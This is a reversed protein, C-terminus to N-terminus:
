DDFNVCWDKDTIRNCDKITTDESVIKRALPGDYCNYMKVRAIDCQALNYSVYSNHITTDHIACQELTPRMNLRRMMCRDFLCDTYVDTCSKISRLMTHTFTCMDFRCNRLFSIHRLESDKFSCNHMALGHIVVHDFIVNNFTCHNFTVNLMRKREIVVDEFTCHNFTVNQIPANEDWDISEDKYAFLVGKFHHKTVTLRDDNNSLIDELVRTDGEHEYITETYCLGPLTESYMGMEVLIQMRADEKYALGTMMMDSSEHRRIVDM